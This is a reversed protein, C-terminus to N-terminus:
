KNVFYLDDIWFDFTVPPASGGVCMEHTYCTPANVQFFLQYAHQVDFIDPDPHYGWNPDQQLSAFDITYRALTDTLGITTAFGNYCYDPSNTDVYNCIGGRPDTHRDTFIVEITRSGNADGMAWFTIGSYASLDVGAEAGLIIPCAGTDEASADPGPAGADSGVAPAIEVALGPMSAFALDLNAGWVGVLPSVTRLRSAHTSIIGPFTEQPTPLASYSWVGLTIAGGTAVAPPPVINGAESCDVATYWVGATAGSPPLWELTGGDGEMDDIKTYGATAGGDVDLQATRSSCSAACALLSALMLPRLTQSGTM